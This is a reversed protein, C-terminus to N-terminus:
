FISHGGFQVTAVSMLLAGILVGMAGFRLREPLSGIIGEIEKLASEAAAGKGEASHATAPEATTSEAAKTATDKLAEVTKLAGNVKQKASGGTTLEKWSMVLGVLAGVVVMAAGIFFCVTAVTEANTSLSM